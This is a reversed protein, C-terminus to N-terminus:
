QAGRQLSALKQKATDATAEFDAAMEDAAMEGIAALKSILNVRLSLQGHTLKEVKALEKIAAMIPALRDNTWSAAVQAQDAVESLAEIQHMAAASATTARSNM